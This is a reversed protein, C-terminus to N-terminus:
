SREGITKEAPTSRESDRKTQQCKKKRYFGLGRHVPRLIAQSAIDASCLCQRGYRGLDDPMMRRCGIGKMGAGSSGNKRECGGYIRLRSMEGLVCLNQAIM